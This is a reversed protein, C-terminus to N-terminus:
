KNQQELIETIKKMQQEAEPSQWSSINNLFFDFVYLEETCCNGKEWERNCTETFHKRICCTLISTKNPYKITSNSAAKESSEYHRLVITVLWHHNTNGRIKRRELKTSTM